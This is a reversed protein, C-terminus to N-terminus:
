KLDIRVKAYRALEAPEFVAQLGDLNADYEGPAFHTNTQKEFLAQMEKTLNKSLTSTKVAKIVNDKDVLLAQIELNNAQRLADQEDCEQM